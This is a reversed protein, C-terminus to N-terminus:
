FLSKCSMQKTQPVSDKIMKLLDPYDKLKLNKEKLLLDTM